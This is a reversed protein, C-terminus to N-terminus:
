QMMAEKKILRDVRIKGFNFGTDNIYKNTTHRVQCLPSVLLRDDVQVLGKKQVDYSGWCAYPCSGPALGYSAATERIWTNGEYVREFNENMSESLAKRPMVWFAHYPNDLCVFQRGAIRVIDHNKVRTRKFSDACYLQGEKEETRIFSPIYRPWLLDFVSIYNLYNEYPVFIDDEVYMFVDHHDLERKIHGRHMWALHFPHDLHPHVFTRITESERFEEKIRMESSATNTDVIISTDPYNALFNDLVTKLHVFKDESYHFSVCVLLKLSM